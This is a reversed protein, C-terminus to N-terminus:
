VNSLLVMQRASFTIAGLVSVASDLLRVGFRSADRGPRIHGCWYTCSCM